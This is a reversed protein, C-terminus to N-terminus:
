ATEDADQLLGRSALAQLFTDVDSGAQAADLSFHRQLEAVLDARSAGEALRRWLISGSENASLYTSSGLDVAVIERDIERWRVAEPKLRIAKDDM